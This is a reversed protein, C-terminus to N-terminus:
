PSENPSTVGYRCVKICAGAPANPCAAGRNCAQPDNSRDLTAYIRYGQGSRTMVYAYNASPAESDKPLMNMYSGWASGWNIIGGNQPDDIKNGMSVPYSGHDGYYIELARQMQALDSKRRSDTAKQFQAAPDLATLTVTGIIGLIAVVIILELLTFGKKNKMILM